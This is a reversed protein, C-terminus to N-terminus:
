RIHARILIFGPPGRHLLGTSMAIGVLRGELSSHRDGWIHVGAHYAMTKFQLPSFAISTGSFTISRMSQYSLVNVPIGRM